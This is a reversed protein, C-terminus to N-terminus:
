APTPSGASRMPPLQMRGEPRILISVGVRTTRSSWPRQINCGAKQGSSSQFETLEHHPIKRAQQWRQMRGEPRILISVSAANIARAAPPQRHQMRGEPRILISVQRVDVTWPRGPQSFDPQMRGEPRILISVVSWSATRNHARRFWLQMRGEPRILISVRGLRFSCVARIMEDSNCGAKQGSSSQFLLSRGALWCASGALQMRGEPRILISVDGLITRGTLSGYAWTADPRRAPHPNFRHCSQSGVQGSRALTTADPRRAPHPNFCPHAPRTPEGLGGGTADPRRAPHPNFCSSHVVVSPM